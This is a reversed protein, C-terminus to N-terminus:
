KNSRQGFCRSCSGTGLSGTSRQSSSSVSTTLILVSIFDWGNFLVTFTSSCHYSPQNLIDSVGISSLIFISLRTRWVCRVKSSLLLNINYYFYFYMVVLQVSFFFLRHYVIAFGIYFLLAQYCYASLYLLLCM